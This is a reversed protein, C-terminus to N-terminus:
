TKTQMRSILTCVYNEKNNNGSLGKKCADLRIQTNRKTANRKTRYTLILTPWFTIYEKASVDCLYFNNIKRNYLHIDKGSNKLEQNTCSM